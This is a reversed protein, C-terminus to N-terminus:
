GCATRGGHTVVIIRSKLIDRFGSQAAAVGGITAGQVHLRYAQRSCRGIMKRVPSTVILTARTRNRHVPFEQPACIAAAGTLPRSPSGQAATLAPVWGAS